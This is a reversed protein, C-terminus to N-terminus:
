LHRWITDLLPFFILYQLHSNHESETSEKELLTKDEARQVAVQM